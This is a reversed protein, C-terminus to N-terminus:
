ASGITGNTASQAAMAVIHADAEEVALPIGRVSRCPIVAPTTTATM